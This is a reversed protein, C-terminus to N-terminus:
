FDKINAGPFFSYSSFFRYKSRQQCTKLLSVRDKLTPSFLKMTALLGTENLVVDANPGDGFSDFISDLVEAATVLDV